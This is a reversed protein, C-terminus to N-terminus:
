AQVESLEAEPEYLALRKAKKLIDAPIDEITLDLAELADTIDYTICYEHNKLEYVLSELLFKRDKKNQELESVHKDMLDSLEQRHSKLVFGGSGISYIDKATANFKSLGEALQENSFAFFIYKFESWENSHRKKLEQYTEITM